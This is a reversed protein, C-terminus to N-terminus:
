QIILNSFWKASNQQSDKVIIEFAHEGSFKEPVVFELYDGKTEYELVFWKGDVFLDYDELDTEKENVKWRLVPKTIMTERGTFNLPSIQPALTDIRLSFDGFYKSQATYMQDSHVTKLARSKKGDYVNIYTHKFDPFGSDPILVTFANQLPVTGSLLKMGNTKFKPDIPEYVCGEPIEFTIYDNKLQLAEKPHISKESWSWTNLNGQEIYANFTVKSKNQHPDFCSFLVKLTDGPHAQTVGLGPLTYIKLPNETTKFSKHYKSRHVQYAEYDKHSNVYRSDDFSIRNIEQGFTTDGNVILHSGYLGCQNAAGNLRDIVNFAFGLGGNESCYDSPITVTNGPIFYGNKGSTINVTKEKNPIRYGNEDLAYIKMSRIEPAKTDALDFGFVLPNLADETKTDRLEFHLHPATSSGTNGSLAFYEGRELVIETSDPFLEVEFNQRRNQEAKVISDLKGVFSSCHAYVSTIGDPHNIYVVKGYGYPSIKVRAVYGKDISYLKYGTVGNTKFDVGMHFHNPRLEGFNAALVLPIGLPSHYNKQASILNCFIFILYTLLITRMNEFICKEYFSDIIM